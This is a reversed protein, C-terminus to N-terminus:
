LRTVTVSDFRVRADEEYLGVSGSRLPNPDTFDVIRAGDVFVRIRAGQAQIQIRNRKGLTLQPSAGTVLFIQEDSGQKKGLEYGNPKLIFYYYNELDRFRFMVWGVEWVNPATRARLQSLTTTTFSITQDRWARKTTVLASHTEEPSTPVASSLTVGKADFAVDGWWSKWQSGFSTQLPQRHPQRRADAAAALVLALLLPVALSSLLRRRDM